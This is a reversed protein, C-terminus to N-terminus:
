ARQGTPRPQPFVRPAVVFAVVLLVAIIAAAYVAPRAAFCVRSFEDATM